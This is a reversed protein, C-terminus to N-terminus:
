LSLAPLAGPSSKRFRCRIEIEARAMGAEEPTAYGSLAIRQLDSDSYNSM